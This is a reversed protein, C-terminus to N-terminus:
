PTEQKQIAASDFLMEIGFSEKPAGLPRTAATTAKVDRLGAIGGLRKMLDAANSTQGTLTVKGGEIQLTRLSTDDPLARTIVDLSQVPSLPQGQALKALQSYKELFKVYGERQAVADAASRGLAHFRTEADRARFYLQASPTVTLAVVLGMVFILLAITLWQWRQLIKKRRVEGFGPMVIYGAGEGRTCWVETQEVNLDPYADHLHQEILSRSTVVLEIPKVKEDANPPQATCFVTEESTFPTCTHLQTHLALEHEQASLPPLVFSTRLLLDEPLLVAEYKLPRKSPLPIHLGQEIERVQVPQQSAGWLRVPLKPRLWALIPWDAMDAWARRLDQILASLDIGFLKAENHLTPM